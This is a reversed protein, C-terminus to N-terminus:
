PRAWRPTPPSPNSAGLRANAATSRAHGAQDTFRRALQELITELHTPALEEYALVLANIIRDTDESRWDTARTRRVDLAVDLAIRFAAFLASPLGTKGYLAKFGRKGGDHVLETANVVPIKALTAMGVTFLPLKGVCLARLLFTPTLSGQANLQKVLGEIEAVPTEPGVARTLARERGHMVLHDAIVGPLAHREVLRERLAASVCTILRETITAPLSPREVMLAQIPEEAGFGDLIKHYSGEAIDAGRNKLLTGVVQTDGTDILADSVSASLTDRRAVAFRKARGERRVIAILDDDSLVTSYRLIPLAVSEVDQALTRAISAPLVTCHKVHESLAERVQREVDRALAEIIAIAYRRETESLKEKTLLAAVGAATQARLAPSGDCKLREVGAPSLVDMSPEITSVDSM